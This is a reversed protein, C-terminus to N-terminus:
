LADSNHRSSNKVKNLPTRVQRVLRERADAKSNGPGYSDQLADRLSRKEYQIVDEGFGAERLARAAVLTDLHGDLHGVAVESKRNMESLIEDAREEGYLDVLNEYGGSHVGRDKNQQNYIAMIGQIALYRDDLSVSPAVKEDVPQDEEIEDPDPLGLRKCAEAWSCRHAITYSELRNSISNRENISLRDM